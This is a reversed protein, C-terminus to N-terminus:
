CPIHRKFTPKTSQSCLKAQLAVYMCVCVGAENFSNQGITHIVYSIKFSVTTVFSFIQM